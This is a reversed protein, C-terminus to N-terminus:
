VRILLEMYFWRKGFFILLAHRRWCWIRIEWPKELSRRPYQGLYTMWCYLACWASV